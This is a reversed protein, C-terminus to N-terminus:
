ALLGPVTTASFGAADGFNTVAAGTAKMATLMVNSTNDLADTRVHVGAKLAGRAKGAILMPMDTTGHSLGESVDSSCVIVSSDLLNGQGEAMRRFAELHRAFCRMTFLVAQHVKEQQTSDHTLNHEVDRPVGPSLQKYCQNGSAGSFQFTAVRNLDCAWALAQVDSMAASVLEMPEIGDVDTNTQSPRVPASCGQSMSSMMLIRTRLESVATLHADLRARDATGLKSQLRKADTNVKDLVSVRLRAYPDNSTPAAGGAPFLRDFLAAPELIPSVPADPGAHSITLLTPGQETNARKSVALQLTKFPTSAGILDGLVHDVTRRSFKSSYPAGNPPLPIIPAGSMIAACGNHHGRYDPTKLAFGSAVSVYSKVDIGASADKLPALEESLLYDAGTNPPVWRNLIVGNGFFFVGFRVPLPTGDALAEGHGDLMAELLPLALTAGMGRLLARRGLKM